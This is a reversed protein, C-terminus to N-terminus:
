AIRLSLNAFHIRKANHFLVGQAEVEAAKSPLGPRITGCRGGPGHLSSVRQPSDQETKPLKAARCNTWLQAMGM